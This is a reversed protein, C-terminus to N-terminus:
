FILVKSFATLQGNGAYGRRTASAVIEPAILESTMTGAAVAAISSPTDSEPPVPRGSPM